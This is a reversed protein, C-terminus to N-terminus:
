MVTPVCFKHTEMLFDYEGINPHCQVQYVNIKSHVQGMNKEDIGQNHYIDKKSCVQAKMNM